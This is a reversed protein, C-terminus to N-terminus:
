CSKYPIQTNWSTANVDNVGLSGLNWNTETWKTVSYHNYNGGLQGPTICKNFFFAVVHNGPTGQDEDFTIMFLTDQWSNPYAKYWTNLWNQLYAGSYDLNQDHSDNNIDPTYYGFEPLSGAKVDAQFFLRM